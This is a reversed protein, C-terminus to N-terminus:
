RECNNEVDSLISSVSVTRSLTGGESSISTVSSNTPSESREEGFLPSGM